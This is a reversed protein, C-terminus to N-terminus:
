PHSNAVADLWDAVADTVELRRTSNGVRVWLEAEGKGKPGKLYVPRTSPPIAM